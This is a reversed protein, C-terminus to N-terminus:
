GEIKTFDAVQLTATRIRNLLLLRNERLKADDANVTVHDFFADVPARLKAIAVMAGAFDESGVAAASTEVAEAIAEDLSREEAEAFLAPDPEEDYARKDKKEEIRLINRARKVGTLLNAGDDTELFAGLAEVRKVTMVLDDEAGISFVADILDHRAGRDRLYVKLRDAFFANFSDPDFASGFDRGRQDQYNAFGRQLPEALRLRVENELLIRIVGLAARRLAYPDKSGTPKEDIAWFGLLTDLKDALAVANSVALSPIADRPGQPKYHEELATCVEADEGQDRAYYRGMLGQLEPFEGVMDTVLDAKCLTAAREAKDADAGVTPAVARALKRLREVREAQTGLKEHFIIDGLEPLRTELPRKRDQDWFFKADALRARIVRENGEVIAKGGDEAILNSVLLFRNVLQQSRRDALSFCKQHSKMATTLVEGPVDLFVEDFTGMLVVPWETLGANEVALAADEVFALQAEEATKQSQDLIIAERQRSDLVVHARKLKEAYDDFGSVVFPDPALFRHGRTENSSVIGDVELPVCSGDLLCLIGHLPRVWRLRGSGWRQSKPWPFQRIVDPVIEAIVESAARGPQEIRALYFDGKKEDSIIEAEDISTLGAARMFGELAKDPAGVRPGRREESVDPSREPLGDIVLTLRRPTVFTQEAGFALGAKELRERVLRALDDAAQRQMRAPIEESFLELLLEGM